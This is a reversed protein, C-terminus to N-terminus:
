DELREGEPATKVLRPDFRVLIEVLVTQAAMVPEIDEYRM